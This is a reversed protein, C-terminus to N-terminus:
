MPVQFKLIWSHVPIFADAEWGLSPLRHPSPPDQAPPMPLLTIGTTLLSFPNLEICVETIGRPLFFM